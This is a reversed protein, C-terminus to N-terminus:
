ENQHTDSPQALSSKIKYCVQEGTEVVGETRAKCQIAMPVLQIYFSSYLVNIQTVAQAKLKVVM